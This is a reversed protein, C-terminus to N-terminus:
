LRGEREMVEMLTPNYEADIDDLEMYEHEFQEELKEILEDVDKAHVGDFKITLKGSWTGEDNKRM